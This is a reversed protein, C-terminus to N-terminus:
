HILRIGELWSQNVPSQYAHDIALEFEDMVPLLKQLLRANAQQEHEVREEEARKRYNAFDAQTRQLLRTFQERERESEELMATLEELSASDACPISQAQEEEQGQMTPEEKEM